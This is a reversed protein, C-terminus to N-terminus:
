SAVHFENDSRLIPAASQFTSRLAGLCAEITGEAGDRALRDQVIGIFVPAAAWVM